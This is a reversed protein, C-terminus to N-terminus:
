RPIRPWGQRRPKQITLAEASRQGSHVRGENQLVLGFCERRECRGMLCLGTHLHGEKTAQHDAAHGIRIVGQIPHRQQGGRVVQQRGLELHHQLPRFPLVIPIHGGQQSGAQRQVEGITVQGFEAAIFPPGM